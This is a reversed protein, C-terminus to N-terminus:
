PENHHVPRPMKLPASQDAVCSKGILERGLPQGQPRMVAVRGLMLGLVTENM